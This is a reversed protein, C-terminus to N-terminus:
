KLAIWPKSRRRITACPLVLAHEPRNLYLGVVDVPKGAIHPDNSLKLTKVFHPKLGYDRWARQVTSGENSGKCFHDRRGPLDNLATPGTVRM